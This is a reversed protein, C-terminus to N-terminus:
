VPISYELDFITESNNEDHIRFYNFKQKLGKM